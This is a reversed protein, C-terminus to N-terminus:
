GRGYKAMLEGAHALAAVGSDGALMRAIEQQREEKTLISVNTMTRDGESYKEVKYHNDARVAISALHTVCFIQKIKGIRSLYEGVSLATEGGIGTDIEDFILTDSGSSSQVAQKKSSEKSDAGSFVTKIALMVRSLEGGSAIRALDRLPEGINASILFEIEDAGWPGCVMNGTSLNEGNAIQKGKRTLGVSFQANPMGLNQLIETVGRGLQAAGMKRKATLALARSILNKELLTIETKMKEKQEETENLTEIEAKAKDLYALVTEEADAIASLAYKKKLRSILALREEVEELRDPNYTLSDRYARLEEALDEAEYYLDQIRKFLAELATDINVANEMANTLKRGQNLMSTEGDFLAAAANNVLNSLKEFDSLRKSELELEKKEGKRLKAKDIEDIAYNLLEIRANRNKEANISQEMIKRKESLELFVRNFSGVEEELGAFKDLYKRHMEKKMLTEHGHQGHLDFILAMFEQLDSRTVSVGQIYQSGRGSTKISRRIILQGDEIEIDRERLWALVDEHPDTLGVLAQVNAEDCGTRIIETDVKAGLLFSIAGVIISKGAGTEGTLINFGDKFSIVLSHILAFNKINLEELM